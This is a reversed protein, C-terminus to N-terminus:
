FKLELQLGGGDPLFLPAASWSEWERYELERKIKRREGRWRAIWVIGVVTLVAGSGAVAGGVIEATKGPCSPAYPSTTVRCAGNQGIAALAFSGGGLLALGGVVTALIPLAMPRAHLEDYLQETPMRRYSEAHAPRPSLLAVVLVVGLVAKLKAFNM